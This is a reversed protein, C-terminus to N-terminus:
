TDLTKLKHIHVTHADENMGCFEYTFPPANSNEHDSILDAPLIVKFLLKLHKKWVWRSGFKMGYHKLLDPCHKRDNVIKM